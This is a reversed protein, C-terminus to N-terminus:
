VACANVTCFTTKLDCSARPTLLIAELLFESTHFYKVLTSFSLLYLTFHLRHKTLSEYEPPLVPVIDFLKFCM